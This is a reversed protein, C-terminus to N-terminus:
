GKAAKGVVCHQKTWFRVCFRFARAQDLTNEYKTTFKFQARNEKVTKLHANLGAEILCL